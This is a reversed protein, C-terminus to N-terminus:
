MTVRQIWSPAYPPLNRQMFAEHGRHVRIVSLPRDAIEPIIRDAVNDLYDILDRKTAGAADFLPEDLNTLTVGLLAAAETM